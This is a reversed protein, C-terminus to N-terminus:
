SQFLIKFNKKIKSMFKWLSTPCITYCMKKLTTAYYFFFVNPCKVNLIFALADGSVLSTKENAQLLKEKWSVVDRWRQLAYIPRADSFFGHVHLEETSPTIGIQQLIKIRVTDAVANQEENYTDRNVEPYCRYRLLVEPINAFHVTRKLLLKVWLDYDEAQFMTENYGGVDLVMDKRYMVVPHAVCCNFLLYARLIDNDLYYPVTQGTEYIQILAGCVGIHPNKQMFEYQVELRHPASVDDADVVAILSARAACIGINRSVSREKNEENTIIIIRSDKNAYENLIDKTKDTSADDIIIFEFENLTQALISDLCECLHKDGNFVAMVVSVKPANSMKHSSGNQGSSRKALKSTNCLTRSKSSSFM